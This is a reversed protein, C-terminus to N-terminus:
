NKLKYPNSYHYKARSQYYDDQLIKNVHKRQECKAQGVHAERIDKIYNYVYDAIRISDRKSFKNTDVRVIAKDIGFCSILLSMVLLIAANLSAYNWMNHQPKYKYYKM